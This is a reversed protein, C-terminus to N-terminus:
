QLYGFFSLEGITIYSPNTFQNDRTYLRVYRVPGATEPMIFQNGYTGRAMIEPNGWGRRDLREVDHVGLFEWDAKFTGTYDGEADVWYSQNSLKSEDLVATGWLEWKVTNVNGYTDLPQGARMQPHIIVRSLKMTQKMDVTFSRPNGVVNTSFWGNQPTSPGWIGDFLMSFPYTANQTNNDLPIIARMDGFPKPVETEIPLGTKPVLTEEVTYSGGPHKVTYKLTFQRTAPDYASGADTIRNFRPEAYYGSVNVTNNDNLTVNFATNTTLPSFEAVRSLRFLNDDNSNAGRFYKEQNVYTFTFTEQNGSLITNEIRTGSALYPAFWEKRRAEVLDIFNAPEHVSSIYLVDDPHGPRNGVDNLITERDANDVDVIVSEGNSRKKYTIKTGLCTAVANGWIIKVTSSQANIGTVLMNTIPRPSFNSTYMEGRSIGTVNATLSYENYRNKNILEFNYTGEPLNEITVSDKQLGKHGEQNREFPKVLSDRRMNWYIVTTEIKPDANIYWVLKVKELGPFSLISDVKGLYVPACEDLYKQHIDNM